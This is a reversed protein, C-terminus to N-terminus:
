EPPLIKLKTFLEWDDLKIQDPDINQLFRDQILKENKGIRNAQNALLQPSIAHGLNFNKGSLLQHAFQDAETEQSLENKPLNTLSGEEALFSNEDQLHGCAIHGMEHALTFLLYSPIDNTAKKTLVIAYRGGHRIVMADMKGAAPISPMYIVPINTQWCLDILTELDIREKGLALLQERLETAKPLVPNAMSLPQPLSQLVRIAISHAFNAAPAMTDRDRNKASRFMANVPKKPLLRYHDGLELGFYYAMYSRLEYQGAQSGAMEQWGDPLIKFTDTAKLGAQKLESKIDIKFQAPSYDSKVVKKSLPKAAVELAPELM